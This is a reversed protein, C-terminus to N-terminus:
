AYIIDKLAEIQTQPQLAGGDEDSTDISRGGNAALDKGTRGELVEMM